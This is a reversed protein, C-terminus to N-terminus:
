VSRSATLTIAWSAFITSFGSVASMVVLPLFRVLSFVIIQWLAYDSRRHAIFVHYLLTYVTNIVTMAIFVRSLYLTLVYDLLSPAWFQMGIVFIGSVLLACLAGTLSTSIITTRARNGSEPLFRVLGYEMGMSSILTLLSMVSILASATGITSSPYLRTALTWFGFGTLSPVVSNLILFISNRYLSIRLFRRLFNETKAAPLAVGIHQGQEIM